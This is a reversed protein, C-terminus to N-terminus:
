KEFQLNGVKIVLNTFTLQYPVCIDRFYFTLYLFSLALFIKKYDCLSLKLREQPQHFLM